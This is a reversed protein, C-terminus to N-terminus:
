LSFRNGEDRMSNAPKEISAHLVRSLMACHNMIIDRKGVSKAPEILTMDAFSIDAQTAREWIERKTRQMNQLRTKAAVVKGM